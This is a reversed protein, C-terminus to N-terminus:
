DGSVSGAADARQESDNGDGGDSGKGKDSDDNAEGSHEFISRIADFAEAAVGAVFIAEQSKKTVMKAIARCQQATLEDVALAKLRDGHYITAGMPEGDKDLYMKVQFFVRENPISDFVQQNQESKDDNEKGM